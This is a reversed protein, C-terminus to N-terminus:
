TLAVDTEGTAHKQCLLAVVAKIHHLSIQIFKSKLSIKHRNTRSRQKIRLTGLNAPLVLDRPHSVM